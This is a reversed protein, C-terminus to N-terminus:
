RTMIWALLYSRSNADDINKEPLARAAQLARSAQSGGELASYMLVYDGLAGDFGASAAQAVNRHVREPDVGLYTSIPSMPVLLIGLKASAEASFWTAYDRKGGWNISVISHDYGRYVGDKSDFNTWYASASAAESSLMWVAESELAKDGTVGAWLALGNWASVAESSSEQNNGDAFPAYGSAWSHGAYADFVRRAPFFRSSAGSALDAAILDMVPALKKVLGPDQRAAVAAAYLFYGYHFHHDNFRDSGFSATLGVIGRARSDYVFCEADRTACGRPETWRVLAQSLQSRLTAQSASDDLQVALQYLNALRYLAKGGFYSDAPRPPTAAVDAGLEQRLTTKQAGSLEAVPLASRPTMRPSQWSLSRGACAELSGYISPYSGWDCDHAFRQRVRQHPMTVLLTDAKDATRYTLTTAVSKSAVSYSVSTAVIPKMLSALKHLDGGHPIAAWVAAQGADLSVQSGKSSVHGQTTLAYASEGSRASWLGKGAKAFTEGLRITQPKKATFTVLPSGEAIVVSGLATDAGDRFEITVSAEDYATVVGSAAHLDASVDPQFAGSITDRGSQVIPVGFAFGGEALAFSLPLPFVPQSKDGFVLGSFWKNTPPVLDGALRHHPMASVSRKPLEELAPKLQSAPLVTPTRSVPSPVCGVLTLTLVAAVVAAARPLRM